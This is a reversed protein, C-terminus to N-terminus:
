KIKAPINVVKIDGMLFLPSPPLPKSLLRFRNFRSSLLKDVTLFVHNLGDRLSNSRVACIGVLMKSLKNEYKSLYTSIRM